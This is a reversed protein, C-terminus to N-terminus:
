WPFRRRKAKKKRSDMTLHFACTYYGPKPKRKCGFVRCQGLAKRRLYQRKVAGAEGPYDKYIHFITDGSKILITQERDLNIEKMKKM